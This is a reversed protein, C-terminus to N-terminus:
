LPLQFLARLRARTRQRGSTLDSWVVREVHYGLRTLALERRKERWLADDSYKLRGDAELIVKRDRWMMDTRYLQCEVPDWVEVQLEPAPLGFDHVALRALSELPSEALPSALLVTQRAWRVGPWGTALRLQADLQSRTVAGERLARDAAMLGDRRDHRALDVITRAVTHVPVGFWSSVESPRTTGSFVHRTTRNGETSDLLCTTEPLEPLRFVPLGHLVAASRGSIVHNRRVLAAACSRLAHRQNDADPGADVVAVVALAGRAPRWWRGRRVYRRIDVDDIGCRLAEARTIVFGHRLADRHAAALVPDSTERLDAVRRQWMDHWMTTGGSSTALASSMGAITVCAADASAAGDM